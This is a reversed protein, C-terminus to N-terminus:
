GGLMALNKTSGSYSEQLHHGQWKTKVTRALLAILGAQDRADIFPRLDADAHGFLCLHLKGESSIRMRNCDNCFNNSYPMILGIKGQYDQHELEVAPGANKDKRAETWGEKILLDYINMAPYHQAEFFAQNDGTRMLEIFRMSIRTDRVLDLYPTININNFQRMLVANLKVSKIPTDLAARMAELVAGLKDHGTIALFTDADLSDASLNLSSLGAGALAKIQHKLRYGNSTLAVHEIGDISSCASVIDKLDKRLTPEGGTLRVKQTGCLALTEVLFQIDSLSLRNPEESPCYGDPLCYQCRFNCADTLSLRLYSFRRGFTDELVEDRTASSHVQRDPDNVLRSRFLM